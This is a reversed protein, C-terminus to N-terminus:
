RGSPRGRSWTAARTSWRAPTGCSLDRWGDGLSKRWGIDWQGGGFANQMGRGIRLSLVPGLNDSDWKATFAALPQSSGAPLPVARQLQRDFATRAPGSLNGSDLPVEQGKLVRELDSRGLTGLLAALDPDYRGPGLLDPRRAAAARREPAPLARLEHYVLADAIWRELAAQRAAAAAAAHSRECRLTYADRAQTPPRWSWRNFPQSLLDRLAAMISRLSQEKVRAVLQIGGPPDQPRELELRVKGKRALAELLEGLYARPMRVSVGRDLREDDPFLREAGTPPATKAEPQGSPAAPAVALAFVLLGPLWYNVTEPVVPRPVTRPTTGWSVSLIRQCPNGSMRPIHEM